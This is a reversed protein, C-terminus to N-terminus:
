KKVLKAVKAIKGVPVVKKAVGMVAGSAGSFKILAITLLLWGAMFMGFRRWENPNTIAGFANRIATFGSDDALSAPVV